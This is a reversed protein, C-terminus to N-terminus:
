KKLLFVEQQRKWRYTIKLWKPQRHLHFIWSTLVATELTRSNFEELTDVLAAHKQTEDHFILTFLIAAPHSVRQSLTSRAKSFFFLVTHGLACLHCDNTTWENPPDGASIKMRKMAGERRKRTHRQSNNIQM